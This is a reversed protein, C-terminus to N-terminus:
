VAPVPKSNTWIRRWAITKDDEVASINNENKNNSLFETKKFYWGSRPIISGDGIDLGKEQWMCGYNYPDYVATMTIESDWNGNIWNGAADEWHGPTFIRYVTVRESDSPGSSTYVVKNFELKVITDTFYIENKYAQDFPITIEINNGAESNLSVGDRQEYESVSMNTMDVYDTSESLSSLTCDNRFDTTGPTKFEDIQEPTYKTYVLTYQEGDSAIWTNTYIAPVWKATQINEKMWKEIYAPPKGLYVETM